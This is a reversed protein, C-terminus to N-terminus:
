HYCLVDARAFLTTSNCTGGQYESPGGQDLTKTGTVVGSPSDIRFNSNFSQLEGRKEGDFYGPPYTLSQQGITLTGSETFTGKFPGNAQGTASFTITSTGGPNCTGSVSTTGSFQSTLFEGSLKSAQAPGAVAGLVPVVSLALTAAVTRCKM